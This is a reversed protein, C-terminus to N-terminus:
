SDPEPRGREADPLVDIRVRATGSELLGLRRAAALSLDILRGEAFPGRDNVRVVVTRGNELNTVLVRTDFPLTRHACTLRSGRYREGSATRQGELKAAYYSAYGTQAPRESWDRRDSGLAGRPHACGAALALLSALAAPALWRATLV